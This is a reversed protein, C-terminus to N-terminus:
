RASWCGRRAMGGWAVFDAYSISSARGGPPIAKDQLSDEPAVLALSGSDEERCTSGRHKPSDVSRGKGLYDLIWVRCRRLYWDATQGPHDVEGGGIASWPKRCRTRM